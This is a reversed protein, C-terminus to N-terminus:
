KKAQKDLIDLVFDRNHMLAVERVTQGAQNRVTTDAGEELLYEIAQASGFAAAMMLPTNGNPAPADIYGGKELLLQLIEVHGATAAYHLANWGPKSVEAKRQLLKEVLAKQGRLSAFMLATEKSANELEPNLDPHEALIQASKYAEERLAFLIAPTHADDPNLSNPNFGKKLLSQVTDTDDLRLAKFFNKREFTNVYAQEKANPKPDTSTQAIASTTVWSLGAGLFFINLFFITLFYKYVICYLQTKVKNRLKRM